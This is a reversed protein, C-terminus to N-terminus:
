KFIDAIRRKVWFDGIEQTLNKHAKFVAEAKEVGV